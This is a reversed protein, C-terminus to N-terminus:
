GMDEAVMTQSQEHEKFNYPRSSHTTTIIGRM